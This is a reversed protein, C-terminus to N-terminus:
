HRPLLKLIDNYTIFAILGLLFVLGVQVFREKVALSLDRRLVGEVALMLIHGGDLIPIPLLNVMGLNLSIFATLYLLDLMGRRAAQGFQSAIGVPGALQKVSVKGEFLGALVRLIQRGMKYNFWVARRAADPFPHSKYVNQAGVTIGISWRKVGDGPDAYTPNLTLNQQRSDREVVVHLPSGDSQKVLTTFQVPNLMAGGDAWVVVDGTQMGGLAAPRGPAVSGVLVPEQPYGLVDTEDGSESSRVTPVEIFQQEGNRLVSLMVRSGPQAVGVEFLADEWHGTPRGNVSLIIDGPRLGSKEAASGPVVGAVRVPQSMFAAEPSGVMFLGLMIVVALIVNMAPGAVAILVRQWRTKSLFEDPAGSREEGPTDGAMKVYGGFPLACLRYDTEGRKFGFLRPGFGIAFVDVRVGLLRAAIFHGWEHILIMFGLVLTVPVVNFILNSIV